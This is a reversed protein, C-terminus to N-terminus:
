VEKIPKVSYSGTTKEKDELYKSYLDPNEKSFKSENFVQTTKVRRSNSAIFMGSTMKRYNGQQNQLKLKVVDRELKLASIQQGLNYHKEMDTIVTPNDITENILEGFKQKQIYAITSEDAFTIEPEIDDTVKQWFDTETKVILEILEDDRDVRIWDMLRNGFWYALYAYDIGTVAFYHHLQVLWHKPLEGNKLMVENEYDWTDKVELLFQKGDEDVGLGDLSAFMFPYEESRIIYSPKDVKYGTESIFWNRIVDEVLNGHLMPTTEETEKTNRNTKDLWVKFPSGYKNLIIQYADSGGLGSKRLGLWEAKSKFPIKNM